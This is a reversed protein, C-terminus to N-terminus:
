ITVTRTRAAGPTRGVLERLHDLTQRLAADKCAACGPARAQLEADGIAAGVAAFFAQQKEVVPAMRSLETLLVAALDRAFGDDGGAALRRRWESIQDQSIM